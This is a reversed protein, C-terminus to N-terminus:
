LPPANPVGSNIIGPQSLDVFGPSSNRNNQMNQISYALIPALGAMFGGFGSQGPTANQGLLGLIDQISAQKQQYGLNLLSQNINGQNVQSQNANGMLAQALLGSRGLGRSTLAHTAQNNAGTLSQANQGFMLAQLIPDIKPAGMATSLLSSNPGLLSNLANQQAPNLAPPRRNAAGAIGGALATGGAIIAPLAAAIPM